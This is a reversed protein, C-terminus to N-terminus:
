KQEQNAFPDLGGMGLPILGYKKVIDVLKDDFVVYNRSGEGAGRSVADFYKIGPIGKGVMVDTAPKLDVPQGPGNRGVFRFYADSGKIPGVFEPKRDYFFADKIHQSQEGLPKDWDLFHEPEANISVEYMHGRVDKPHGAAELRDAVRSYVPNKRLLEVAAGVDGNTKDMAGWAIMRDNPNELADRYAKAVAENDAFYLGHGYAQAGEGTGIKSLDFRDFSHPSGHYARIAGTNPMAGFGTELAGLYDGQRAQQVMHGAETYPDPPTVMGMLGRVAGKLNSWSPVPLTPDAFAQRDLLPM